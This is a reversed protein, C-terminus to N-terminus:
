TLSKEIAVGLGLAVRNEFSFYSVLMSLQLIGSDGLGAQRLGDIHVERTTWPERTLRRAHEFELRELEQLGAPQEGRCLGDLTPSEDGLRILLQRYWLSSYECYNLASVYLALRGRTRADLQVTPKLQYDRWEKTLQAADPNYGMSRFLNCPDSETLEALSQDPCSIWAIKKDEHPASLRRTTAPSPPTRDESPPLQFDPLDSQYEFRIGIGDAMRNLYNFHASGLVIHLIEMDHFGAQRLSGIDSELIMWPFRTLKDAFELMQRDKESLAAQRFDLKLQGALGGDNTAARLFEAHASM